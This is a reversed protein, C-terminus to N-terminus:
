PHLCVFRLDLGQAFVNPISLHSFHFHSLLFKFLM